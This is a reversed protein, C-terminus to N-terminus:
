KCSTYCKEETIRSGLLDNIRRKLAARRDNEHYVSRALEIFRPGFDKSKECLRIDDEVQWLRQNIAQLEFTLRAIEESQGLDRDRVSKLAQCEACIRGRKSPDSIKQAKIELITIKDILEGPAIEVTLPRPSTKAGLRESLRLAMREFVGNWDGAQTQRFLRMSPYWPSDERELLWRWDPVYSLAVWVPVGLAGALHAIATDPAIVLDLSKMVAATDMFAGCKTDLDSGLDIVPFPCDVDGRQEAGPGKQLAILCVGEMRALRGFHMLPVSRQRDRPYQPNGQWAIGIKFGPRHTLKRRWKTVLEANV